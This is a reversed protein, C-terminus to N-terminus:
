LYPSIVGSIPTLYGWNGMDSWKYRDTRPEGQLFDMSIRFQWAQFEVLQKCMDPFTSKYFRLLAHM